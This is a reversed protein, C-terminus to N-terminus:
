ERANEPLGHYVARRHGFKLFRLEHGDWRYVGRYEGIRLRWLDRYNRM